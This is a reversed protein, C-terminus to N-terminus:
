KEGAVADILPKNQLYFVGFSKAIDEEVKKLDRDTISNLHIRNENKVEPLKFEIDFKDEAKIDLKISTNKLDLTPLEFNLDMNINRNLTKQKNNKWSEWKVDGFFRDVVKPDQAWFGIEYRTSGIKKLTAADTRSDVYFNASIAFEDKDNRKRAHSVNISGNRGGSKETETIDTNVSWGLFLKDKGQEKLTVGLDLGGKSFIDSNEDKLGTKIDLLINRGGKEAMIVSIKREVINGTNDVLMTMTLGEPFDMREIFQVLEKSLGVQTNKINLNSIYSKLVDNLSLVGSNELFEVLQFVGADDLMSALIIYNGFTLKILKDDASVDEALEQFLIKTEQADMTVSLERCRKEKSNIIRNEQKGYKVDEDKILSSILSGYKDVAGDFEEESFNLDRAIDSMRFIRKPAVPIKFRKYVEDIRDTDVIFYKEALLVPINLGLQRNATFINVDLMPSRELLYSAKTLSEKAKPDHASDIILKSKSLIDIIGRANSIGFPNESESKISSTLELRTKSRSNLYPEYYTYFEKYGQKIRKSYKEFNKAEAKLYFQKPTQGGRSFLIFAAAGAILLAAAIIWKNKLM